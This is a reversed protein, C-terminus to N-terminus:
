VQVMNRHMSSRDLSSRRDFHVKSEEGDFKYSDHRSAEIYHQSSARRGGLFRRSLTNGHNQLKRAAAHM